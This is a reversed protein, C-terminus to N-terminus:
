YTYICTTIYIYMHLLFNLQAHGLTHVNLENEERVYRHTTPTIICIGGGGGGGLLPIHQLVIGMAYGNCYMVSM